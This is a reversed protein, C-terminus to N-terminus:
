MGEKLNGKKRIIDCVSHTHIHLLKATLSWPWSEDDSWPAMRPSFQIATRFFKLDYM